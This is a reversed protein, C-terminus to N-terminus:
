ILKYLKVLISLLLSSLRFGMYTLCFYIIRKKSNRTNKSYKSLWKYKSLMRKVDPNKLFPKVYPIVELYYHSLYLYDADRIKKSGSLVNEINLFIDELNKMKLKYSISGERNQRYMYVGKNYIYYSAIHQSLEFCWKVDESTMNLPFSINNIAVIDRRICKNWACPYWIGNDILSYLNDSFKNSCSSMESLDFQYEKIRDKGYYYSCSFIIADPSHVEIICNLNELFGEDRWFDDGDLFLLYDGLAKKIGSNRASSLGGNEKNVLKICGNKKSLEECHEFTADTSGDNVLVIEYDKFSQKLISDVCSVIYDQVNYAPVIVSFRM